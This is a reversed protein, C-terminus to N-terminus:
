PLFYTVALNRLVWIELFYYLGDLNVVDGDKVLHNPLIKNEPWDHGFYPKWKVEKADFSNKICDRVGKTSIVPVENFVMLLLIQAM